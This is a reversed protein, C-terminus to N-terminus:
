LYSVRDTEKGNEMYVLPLRRSQRCVYETDSTGGFAGAECQTIVAGDQRGALVIEDGIRPDGVETIDIMMQDMCVNGIIPCRVGHLLVCGRNSALRSTGDVFGCPVVGVVSARQAQWTCEYGVFTGAAISRVSALRSKVSMVPYAEIQPFSYNGYLTSGPRVMDLHMEPYRFTAGGDCIHRLPIRCGERELRDCLSAFRKFQMRCYADDQESYATALMSFIGEVRLNKLSAIAEVQAATNENLDLGLRTLGTDVSVHVCLRRGKRAALSDLEEAQEVSCLNPMLDYDFLLDYDDEFTYGFVLIPECFGARRLEAGEEPIAVGFYSAGMEEFVEACRVAGHGYANGKLPVLLKTGPSLCKMIIATNKRLADLDIEIWSSRM